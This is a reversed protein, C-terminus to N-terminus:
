AIALGVILMIAIALFWCILWCTLVTYFIKFLKAKRTLDKDICAFVLLVILGIFVM